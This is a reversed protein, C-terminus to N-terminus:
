SKSSWRSLVLSSSLSLSLATAGIFVAFNLVKGRDSDEGAGPSPSLPLLSSSLLSSLISIPPPPLWVDVNLINLCGLLEEM